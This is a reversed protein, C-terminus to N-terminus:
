GVDKEVGGRPLKVVFRAGEGVESCVEIVGGHREMIQYSLSLGLGTGQGVEKTTFFPDFIHDRDEPTIGEGDDEVTVTTWEADEDTTVTITGTDAIAQAANSLLNMFVQGLQAKDGLVPVVGAYRRVVEIRGKLDYHLLALSSDLAEEVSFRAMSPGRARAFDRLKQVISSIREAGDGMIELCRHMDAVGSSDATPPSQALGAELDSLQGRLLEISQSLYNVPNNIEHAVGAVLRGLAAMKEAQILQGQTRKLEEHVATLDAHAVELQHHARALAQHAQELKRAVALEGELRERERLGDVMANFGDVLEGLEKLRAKRPVTVVTSLDGESVQKVGRALALVPEVVSRAYVKYILFVLPGIILFAAVIAGWYGSRLEARVRAGSLGVVLTGWRLREIALPTAFEMVPGLTDDDRAQHILADALLAKHVFPSTARTGYLEPDTHSVIVGDDDLVAAYLVDLEPHDTLGSLYRDLRPHDPDDPTALAELCPTALSTVLARGKTVLSEHLVLHRERVASLVGMAVVAIVLLSTTIITLRFRM